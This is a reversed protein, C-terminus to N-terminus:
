LGGDTPSARNSELIELVRAAAEDVTPFRASQARANARLEERLNANEMLRLLASAVSEVNFPDFYVAADGAIEPMVGVNSCAVPVGAALAEILATPCNECTSSFAFLECSLLLAAVESAHLEGTLVVRGDDLGLRGLLSQIRKGYGKLVEGGAIVLQPPSDTRTIARAYGEILQTLNKYPYFHSVTLVYPGHIGYRALAEARAGVAGDTATRSRYVISTRDPDMGYRSVFLDRFYKSIFIVHVARRASWRLLRGLIWLRLWTSFGATDISVSDCFPAANQLTVVCPVPSVLPTTNAPCYLVDIRQRAVAKWLLAQEVCVRAVLGRDAGEMPIVRFASILDKGLRALTGRSAFLVFDHRALVSPRRWEGLLQALNTYSGGRAQFLANIGIRV